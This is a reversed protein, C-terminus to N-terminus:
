SFMISTFPCFLCSVLFFPQLYLSLASVTEVNEVDAQTVDTGNRDQDDFARICTPPTNRFLWSNQVHNSSCDDPGLSKGATVTVTLQTECTGPNTVKCASLLAPETLNVYPVGKAGEISFDQFM